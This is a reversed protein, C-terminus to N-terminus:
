PGVEYVIDTGPHGARGGAGGDDIGDYGVSWVRLRGASVSYGLKAGFPDDLAPVHGVLLFGVAARLLRLRARSARVGSEASVLWNMVNGLWKLRYAAEGRLIPNSSADMELGIEELAKRALAWPIAECTAARQMWGDMRHFAVAAALRPSFCSRWADRAWLPREIQPGDDYFSPGQRLHKSGFPVLGNLLIRRHSPWSDDLSKLVRELELLAQGSLKAAHLLDGLEWLAQGLFWTSSSEGILLGNGGLDRAFQCADLLLELAEQSRGEGATLRARSRALAMLSQTKELGAAEGSELAAALDPWRAEARRAGRGLHEFAAAHAEVLKRVGGVDVPPLARGVFRHLMNVNGRMRGAEAIALTYDDWANGPLTEGRLVPRRPDGSLAAVKLDRVRSEMEGWALDAERRIWLWFSLGILAVFGSLVALIKWLKVRRRPFPDV